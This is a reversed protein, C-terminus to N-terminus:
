GRAACAPPPRRGGRPARRPLSRPAARKNGTQVELRILKALMERPQTRPSMDAAGELLLERARLGGAPWALWGAAAAREGRPQVLTPPTLRHAREALEAAAEPAGRAAVARAAAALTVAVSEDPDETALALHRAREEPEEAVEALRRHLARRTGPDTTEVLVSALLPHEFRM